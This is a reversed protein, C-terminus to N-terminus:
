RSSIPRPYPEWVDPGIRWCVLDEWGSQNPHLFAADWYAPFVAASITGVHEGGWDAEAGCCLLVHWSVSLGCHLWRGGWSAWWTKCNESSSGVWAEWDWTRKRRRRTPLLEEPARVRSWLSSRTRTLCCGTCCGHQWSSICWAMVYLSFGAFYLVFFIVAAPSSDGFATETTGPWTQVSFVVCVWKQIYCPFHCLPLDWM